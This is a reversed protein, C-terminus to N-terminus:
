HEVVSLFLREYLEAATEPLFLQRARELANIAMREALAPDSLLEAVGRGLADVDDPPVLRGARGDTGLADSVGGTAYAVCPTGCAMAELVSLPLGESLKSQTALVFLDSATLVDRVGNVQGLYHFRGEGARSNLAAIEMEKAKPGCVVLHADGGARNVYGVAEAVDIIGKEKLIGGLFCVLKGNRPLRLADRAAAKESVSPPASSPEFRVPNHIVHVLSPRIATDTLLAARVADSVAVIASARWDAM